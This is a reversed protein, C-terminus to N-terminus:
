TKLDDEGIVQLLFEDLRSQAVNHAVPLPLINAMVVLADTLTGVLIGLAVTGEGVDLDHLFSQQPHRFGPSGRIFVKLGRTLLFNGGSLELLVSNSCTCLTRPGHQRLLRPLRM